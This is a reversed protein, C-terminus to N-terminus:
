VLLGENKIKRHIENINKPIDAKLLWNVDFGNRIATQMLYNSESILKGLNILNDNFEIRYDEHLANLHL